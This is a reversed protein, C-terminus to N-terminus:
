KCSTIGFQAIAEETLGNALQRQYIAETVSEPNNGNIAFRKGDLHKPPLHHLVDRYHRM